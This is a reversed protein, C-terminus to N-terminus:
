PLSNTERAFPIGFFVAAKVLIEREERLIKVERRVRRLEAL